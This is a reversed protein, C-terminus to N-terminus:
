KSRPWITQRCIMSPRSIASQNLRSRRRQRSPSLSELKQAASESQRRAATHRDQRRCSRCSTWSPPLPKISHTPLTQKAFRDVISTPGTARKPNFWDTPARQPPRQHSAVESPSTTPKSDTPSDDNKPDSLDTLSASVLGGVTMKIGGDTDGTDHDGRDAAPKTEQTKATAQTTALKSDLEVPPKTSAARAQTVKPDDSLRLDDTTTVTPKSVNRDTELTKLNSAVASALDTQKNPTQKPSTQKRTSATALRQEPAPLNSVVATPDETVQVM